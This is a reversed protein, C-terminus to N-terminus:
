TPSGVTITGDLTETISNPEATNTSQATWLYDVSSVEVLEIGGGTLLARAASESISAM